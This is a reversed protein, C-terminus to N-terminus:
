NKSKETALYNVCDAKHEDFDDILWKGNVKRM